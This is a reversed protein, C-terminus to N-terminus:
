VGSGHSNSSADHGAAVKPSRCAAASFRCAETLTAELRGILEDRDFERAAYQTGRRGMAAREDDGIAVLRLVADALGSADGAGCVFGAGAEEVIRGGEGDLMAVIPIGAQLYSQVKGPITMSFVPDKRLTVLLADAHRYFSPMRELPHRGALVVRDGLGRRAIESEVWRSARGDGVVIWRIGPNSKLREAADLIAPFDQAEGVNGAFLVTFLDPRWPVEPAPDSTQGSALAESWSPFYRIRDEADRRASHRLVAPIFARSQVLIVACRDYIFGVLRSVAATLWKSRIAGLATLTEPWLDLVWLSVPAHKIRGLLIAPLAVTIPSPEYVFIVDPTCRRLRWTGLLSASLAFSLYNLVLRLGSGSGRVALPVRVVPAGEYMSFAARNSVFEPFLRGKPYNPRGTLVTVEHGRRMLEAVLDNIRFNEPWFYQSVVLIRM